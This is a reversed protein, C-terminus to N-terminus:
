VVGKDRLRSLLKIADCRLCSCPDETHPFRVFGKELLGVAERFLDPLEAPDDIGACANWSDVLRQATAKTMIVKTSDGANVKEYSEAIVVAEYICDEENYRFIAPGQEEQDLMMQPYQKSENSGM